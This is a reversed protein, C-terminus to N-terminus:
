NEHWYHSKIVKRNMVTHIGMKYERFLEKVSLRIM